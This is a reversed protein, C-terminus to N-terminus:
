VDGDRMDAGCFPCYEFREKWRKVVERSKDKFVSDCVSCDIGHEIIRGIHDVSTSEEWRGHVVPVADVTPAKEIDEWMVSRPYEVTGSLDDPIYVKFYLADADILRM